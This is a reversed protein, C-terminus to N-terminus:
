KQEKMRRFYDYKLTLDNKKILANIRENMDDIYKKQIVDTSVRDSYQVYNTGDFWSYDSFFVFGSYFEDMIDSGIYNEDCYEIGLLNLVTPLIDLQSNVKTVDVRNFDKSWIFFPTHNIRNDESNKYKDLITKDNLTYLYHDAYAVIITNDILGNDELAKLLLEVMYDTEAAYLRAVDEETLTTKIEGDKFVKESVLKGLKSDISFPTHPTYTIVYNMFPTKQKFMKEYFVENLILERDLQYSIDTYKKTDMLSYYNDYGWNRYNIDRMYYEGNNMHFANVGYGENKLMNPLSHPFYNKNFSYANQIYSIPTIFGTSVALESNFTSGGGTYYSYHNNFNISNNLMKYITPTDEENLLWSDLGELQLFIVNKGKFIGTYNNKEHPTQKYYMKELFKIEEPNEPEEPKLFTMYLDRFSYEYLGCIKICKNSDNFNEYVNRPNRWTDWKLTSNLPGFLFPTITHVIIFSAIFVIIRRFHNHRVKPFKVSVFIGSSLTLLCIIVNLFNVSKLTDFIYAKGESASQLLNFSFFFGTYPYYVYHTLFLLYFIGFMIAYFTRGINGKLSRAVTVIIGIWTVSFLINPLIVQFHFYNVDSTLIKIFVDMLIFPFALLLIKKKEKVILQWFTINENETDTCDNSPNDVIANNEGPLPLEKNNEM